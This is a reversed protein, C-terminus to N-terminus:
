RGGVWIAMDGDGARTPQGTRLDLVYVGDATGYALRQGDPSWPSFSFLFADFFRQLGVVAPSPMFSALERVAGDAVEVTHWTRKGDPAPDDQTLYAIRQGDPSWFFSTVQEDGRSLIRPEGGNGDVLKLTGAVSGGAVPQAAVYAIQDSTPSRALRVDAVKENALLKVEKGDRSARVIRSEIDEITPRAKAIPPQAVYYIHDGDLAWAPAQFLGPDSLIPQSAGRGPTYTELRGGTVAHGDVHLLLTRSQRDWAIYSSSGTTILQAPGSGDAPVLHTTLGDASALLFSIYKGDPSWALAFPQNVSTRFLEMQAGTRLDLRMIALNPPSGAVYAIQRGDPAVAPFRYDDDNVNGALVRASTEGDTLLQMRSDAGVLVLGIPQPAPRSLLAWALLTGAAAILLVLGGIIIYLTRRLAM